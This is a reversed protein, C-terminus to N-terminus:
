GYRVLKEAEDVSLYSRHVPIWLFTINKYLKFDEDFKLAVGKVNEFTVTRTPYNANPGLDIVKEMFTGLDTMKAM